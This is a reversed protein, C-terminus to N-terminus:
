PSVTVPTNWANSSNVFADAYRVFSTGFQDFSVYTTKAIPDTAIGPEVAILYQSSLTEDNASIQAVTTWSGSISPLMAGVLYVLNGDNENWIAVARGDLGDDIIAVVPLGGTNARPGTTSSITEVSGWNGASDVVRAYVLSGNFTSGEWVIVTNGNKDVAMSPSDHAFVVGSVLTIVSLSAFIGRSLASM